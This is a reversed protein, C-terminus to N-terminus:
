TLWIFYVKEQWELNLGYGHVTHAFEHLLIHNMNYYPDAETCMFNDDVCTARVGGLGALSDYKRGDFTCTNRCLGECTDSTYCTHIKLLGCWISIHCEMGEVSSSM